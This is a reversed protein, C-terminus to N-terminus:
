LTQMNPVAESALEDPQVEHILLDQTSHVYFDGTAGPQVRITPYRAGTPTIPTVDVPWGHAAFVTVKTTM